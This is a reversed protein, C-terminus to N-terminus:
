RTCSFIRLILVELFEEQRCPLKIPKHYSSLSEFGDISFSLEKLERYFYVRVVSISRKEDRKIKQSNIIGSIMVKFNVDLCCSQFGSDNISISFSDFEEKHCLGDWFGESNLKNSAISILFDKIKKEEVSLNKESLKKILLNFAEIISSEKLMQMLLAKEEERKQNVDSSVNKIIEDIDRM